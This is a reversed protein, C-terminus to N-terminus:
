LGRARLWGDITSRLEPADRELFLTHGSADLHHLTVDDSGTYMDRQQEGAPPPFSKDLEGYVLLVPKTVNSATAAEVAAAHVTSQLDGCPNRRRLAPAVAAVEPDVNSYTDDLWREDTGWVFAYGGPGGPEPVGGTACSSSEGTAAAMLVRDSAARANFAMVVFADAANFSAATLSTIFGGYSHGALTVREFPRAESSAFDGSRLLALVQNVVDAQSGLCSAAGPPRDSEGYGLRDIVVSAHGLRAMETAFDYGPVDRFRIYDGDVDAGHIYLTVAGPDADLAARPATLHGRVTYTEGDTPPCPVVSRNVNRVEFAVPVDVIEEASAPAAGALAAVLAVMGAAIRRGM